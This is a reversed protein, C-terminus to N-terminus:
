FMKKHLGIWWLAEKKQPRRLSWWSWRMGKWVKLWIVDYWGSYAGSNVLGYWFELLQGLTVRVMRGFSVYVVSRLPWSNLWAMCNHDSELLTSSSSLCQLVIDDGIRAKVLANLPGITYVNSFSPCHSLSSEQNTTQLSTLGLLKLWPKARRLSSNYFLIRSQNDAFQRYTKVDCFAKWVQSMKLPRILIKKEQLKKKKKILEKGTILPTTRTYTTKNLSFSISFSNVLIM